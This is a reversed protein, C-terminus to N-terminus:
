YIVKIIELHTKEYLNVYEGKIKIIPRHLAQPQIFVVEGIEGTNLLVKCGLYYNMINSCFLILMNVDFKRIMQVGMIKVIDFVNYKSKLSEYTDAIGIIRAIIGIKNGNLSLPYGTGDCREHHTLVGKLVEINLENYPVLKEYGYIPHRKYELKEMDSLEAPNKHRIIPGLSLKGVDHVLAALIVNKLMDEDLMQWRGIVLSIFAVNISHDYEDEPMEKLLNVCALLKYNDSFNQIMEESVKILRDVSLTKEKKFEDFVNKLVEAYDKYNELTKDEVKWISCQKALVDISEISIWVQTHKFNKLKELIDETLKQGKAVITTGTNEDVIPQLITMGPVCESLPIIVKEVYLEAM